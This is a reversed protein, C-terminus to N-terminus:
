LDFLVTRITHVIRCKNLSLGINNLFSSYRLQIDRTNGADITERQENVPANLACPSLSTM